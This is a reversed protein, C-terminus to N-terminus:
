AKAFVQSGSWLTGHTTNGRKFNGLNPLVGRMSAAEVGMWEAIGHWVADWPTSPIMRGRGASISEAPYIDPGKGGAMVLLGSNLARVAAIPYTHGPVSSHRKLLARRTSCPATRRSSPGLNEKGNDTLDEFYQGLVQGGRVSGGAIFANGGQAM